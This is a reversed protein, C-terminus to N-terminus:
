GGNKLRDPDGDRLTKGVTLSAASRTTKPAYRSSPPLSIPPSLSPGFQALSVGVRNNTPYQNTPNKAPRCGSSLSRIRKMGKQTLLMYIISKYRLCWWFSSLSKSWHWFFYVGAKLSHQHESVADSYVALLLPSLSHSVNRSFFRNVRFFAPLVFNYEETWSM